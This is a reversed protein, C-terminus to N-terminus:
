LIIIGECDILCKRSFASVYLSFLDELSVHVDSLVQELMALNSELEKVRDKSWMLSSCTESCRKEMQIMPYFLMTLFLLIFLHFPLILLYDTSARQVVSVDELKTSM